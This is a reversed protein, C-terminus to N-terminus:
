VFVYVYLSMCFPSLSVYVTGIAIQQYKDRFINLLYRHASNYGDKMMGLIKREGYRTLDGKLCLGFSCYTYFLLM